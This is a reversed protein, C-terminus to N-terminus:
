DCLPHVPVGTLEGVIVTVSEKDSDTLFAMIILHNLLICYMLTYFFVLVFHV